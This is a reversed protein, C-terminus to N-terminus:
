YFSYEYTYIRNDSKDNTSKITQTQYETTVLDKENYVFTNEYESNPVSNHSYYSSTQRIIQRKTNYSFTKKLQLSNYIFEESSILEGLSDYSYITKLDSSKATKEIREIVCGKNDYKYKIKGNFNYAVQGKSNYLYRLTDITSDNQNYHINRVEILQGKINYLFYESISISNLYNNFSTRKSLKGKNDYFETYTMSSTKSDGFYTKKIATRIGLQKATTDNVFSNQGRVEMFMMLLSITLIYFAQQM